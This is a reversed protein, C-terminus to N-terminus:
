EKLSIFGEKKVIKQGKDGLMYKIIKKLYKENKKSVYWYLERSIPYKKNLINSYTGEVDNVKLSNVSGNKYAMGIYGIADQNKMVENVISQNSPLFVADKKYEEENLIHEKFFSYTGSNFDRSLVMIMEDKGRLEKWNKIEGTFIKKLEETTINKVPNDKNVIVLIGDYGIVIEKIEIGLEKAKEIEKTKIGRSAQAIDISNELLGSIGKSSGGGTVTVLSKKNEEMYEEAIDQGMKLITDSGKIKIIKKNNSCATICLILLILTIIKKM